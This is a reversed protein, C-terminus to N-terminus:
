ENVIKAFHKMKSTQNLALYVEPTNKFQKRLSNKIISYNKEDQLSEIFKKCKKNPVTQLLNRLLLFIVIKLLHRTTQIYLLLNKLFRFIVLIKLIDKRQIYICSM